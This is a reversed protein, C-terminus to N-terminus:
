DGRAESPAGQLARMLVCALAGGLAGYLHADVVVPGGAANATMPLAGALQEFVLKAALGLLLYLGSRQGQRWELWAGMAFLGHLAGSLGVYWGVDTSVLWLGVNIAAISLILAVWWWVLTARANFIVGILVVAVANLLTHSWSLHVVHAGLLRWLELAALPAREYRLAERISEGGAALLLILALLPVFFWWFPSKHESM